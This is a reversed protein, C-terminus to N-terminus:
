AEAPPVEAALPPRVHPALRLESTGHRRFSERGENLSVRNAGGAYDPDRLQVGDDEWFCVSCIDYSGSAPETLTLYGCCPCAYRRGLPTDHGALAAATRALWAWADRPDSGFLHALVDALVHGAAARDDDGEVSVVM